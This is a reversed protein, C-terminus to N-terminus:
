GGRQLQLGCSCLQWECLEWGLESCEYGKTNSFRTMRIWWRMRLVAISHLWWSVRYSQSRQRRWSLWWWWVFSTLDKWWIAWIIRIMDFSGYFDVSIKLRGRCTMSRCVNSTISYICSTKLWLSLNNEMKTRPRSKRFPRVCSLVSKLGKNTKNVMIDRRGVRVGKWRYQSNRLCLRVSKKWFLHPMM